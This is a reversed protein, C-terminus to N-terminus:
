HIIIKKMIENEDGKYKKLVELQLFTICDLEGDFIKIAQHSKSSVYQLFSFRFLVILMDLKKEERQLYM